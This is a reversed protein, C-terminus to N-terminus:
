TRVKYTIAGIMAGTDILPKTGGFRRRRKTSEELGPSLGRAVRTKMGAAILEGLQGLAQDKTLEGRAVRQAFLRIWARIRSLNEDVYARNWSREPVHPNGEATVSGFEHVSALLVNSLGDDRSDEDSLIGVDVVAQRGTRFVRALRSYGRDIERTRPGAM